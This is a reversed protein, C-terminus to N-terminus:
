CAIAEMDPEAAVELVLWQRLRRIAGDEARERRCVLYWVGPQAVSQPLARVLRGARLDAAAVFDPVLAVGRGDIAAEMALLYSDFMLSPHSGLEGM